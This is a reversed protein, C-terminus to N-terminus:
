LGAKAPEQHTNSTRELPAESNEAEQETRNLLALAASDPESTTRYTAAVKATQLMRLVPCLYQWPCPARIVM